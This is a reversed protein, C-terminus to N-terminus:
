ADEEPKQSLSQKSIEERFLREIEAIEELSRCNPFVNVWLTGDIRLAGFEIAFPHGSQGSYFPRSFCYTGPNKQCYREMSRYLKGDNSWGRNIETVQPFININLDGGLTHAIFHGRDYRARQHPEIYEIPGLPQRHLISDKRKSKASQTKGHVAVLRDEVMENGRAKGLTVLESSYDFLYEYSSIKIRHINAPQPSLKNYLSAWQYPLEESLFSIGHEVDATQPSFIIKYNILWENVNM